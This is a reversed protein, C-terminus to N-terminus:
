PMWADRSQLMWRCLCADIHFLGNNFRTPEWYARSTLLSCVRCARSRDNIAGLSKSPFFAADRFLICPFRCPSRVEEMEKKTFRQLVYVKGDMKGPPRGIGPHFRHFLPLFSFSVGCLTSTFVNRKSKGLLASVQRAIQEIIPAISFIFKSTPSM